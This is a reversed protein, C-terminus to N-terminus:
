STTNTGENTRCDYLHDLQERQTMPGFQVSGRSVCDVETSTKLDVVRVHTNIVQITRQFHIDHYPDADVLEQIARAKHQGCCFRHTILGDVLTDVVFTALRTCATQQSRRIIGCTTM